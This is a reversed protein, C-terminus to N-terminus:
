KRIYYLEQQPSQRIAPPSGFLNSLSREDLAKTKSTHRNADELYLTKGKFGSQQGPLFCVSGYFLGCGDNRASSVLSATSTRRAVGPKSSACSVFCLSFVALVPILFKTM